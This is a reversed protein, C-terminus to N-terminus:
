VNWMYLTRKWFCGGLPTGIFLYEAFVLIKLVVPIKNFNTRCLFHFRTSHIGNIKSLFLFHEISIIRTQLIYLRPRWISTKGFNWTNRVFSCDVFNWAQAMLSVIFRTSNNVKVLMMCKELSGSQTPQKCKKTWYNIM